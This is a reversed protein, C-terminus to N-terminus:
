RALASITVGIVIIIMGAVQLPPLPESFILKAGLPVLVFTLAMFPYAFGVELREIALMWVVAALAAAALGSLVGIDTLMARIYSFRDSGSAIVAAHALARAKIILQAYVTFAVAAALLFSARMCNEKRAQQLREEGRQRNELQHRSGMM